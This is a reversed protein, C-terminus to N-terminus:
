SAEGKKKNWTGIVVELPNHFQLYYDLEEERYSCSTMFAHVNAVTTIKDAMAILESNSLVYLTKYYCELNKNFRNILELRKDTPKVGCNITEETNM